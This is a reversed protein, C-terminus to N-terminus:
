FGLTRCNVPFLPIKKTRGEQRQSSDKRSDCEQLEDFGVDSASDRPSEDVEDPICVERIEMWIIEKGAKNRVVFGFPNYASFFM